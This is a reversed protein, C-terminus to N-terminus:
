SRWQILQKCCVVSPLHNLSLFGEHPIDDNKFSNLFMTNGLMSNFPRNNGHEVRVSSHDTSKFASIFVYFIM